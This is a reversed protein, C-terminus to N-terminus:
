SSSIKKLIINSCINRYKILDRELVIWDRSQLLFVFEM